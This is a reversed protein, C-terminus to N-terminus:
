ARWIGGKGQKFIKRFQIPAVIIGNLNAIVAALFMCYVGLHFYTIFIRCLVIFLIPTIISLYYQIRIAGIGNLLNVYISGFSISISYILCWLSMELPISVVDKGIWLDYAFNSVFLMIVGILMFVLLAKEYRKVANKIWEFDGKSYADTAASWFPTLIIVFGMTIVNFYKYTINYATVENMGFNRAIIYNATQYQILAAIQIIFFKMSLNFIDKLYKVKAYKFSPTYKRYETKFLIVNAILLIIIPAVTLGIGLNILSGQTTKTLIFIILLSLLQGLMDIFSSKAPQQNAILVTNVIRLVFQLCFYSFVIIVLISIDPSINDKLNLIKNWDLYKNFIIFIVWLFSFIAILAVYTTSVYAKASDFDKKAIAETFKNRMGNSLGIDFFSVWAVISSVTLWIGYDTPNVYKITIPVLLLSIAISILKILLSYLINKKAKVSRSHGGKIAYLLREYLNYNKNDHM